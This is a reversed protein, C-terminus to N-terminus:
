MACVVPAARAPAGEFAACNRLWGMARGPDFPGPARWARVLIRAYFSGVERIRRDFGRGNNTPATIGGLIEALDGEPLKDALTWLIRAGTMDDVGLCDGILTVVDAPGFPHGYLAWIIEERLRMDNSTAGLQTQCADRLVLKGVDGLRLLADLAHAREAFPSAQRVLVAALDALM